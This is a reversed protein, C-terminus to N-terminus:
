PVFSLTRVGKESVLVLALSMQKQAYSPVKLLQREWSGDDPVALIYSVEAGKMQLVLQGLASYLAQEKQRSSSGEVEVIYIGHQEHEAVVDARGYYAHAGIRAGIAVLAAEAIAARASKDPPHAGGKGREMADIDVLVRWGETPPFRYEILWRKVELQYM